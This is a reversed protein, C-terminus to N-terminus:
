PGNGDAIEVAHMAAVRRQQGLKPSASLRDAAGGHNEGELRMRKLDESRFLEHRHQGRQSVPRVVQVRGPRILDDDQLDVAIQQLEVGFFEEVLDYSSIQVSARDHFSEVKAETSVPLAGDLSESREAPLIANLKCDHRRQKDLANRDGAASHPITEGTTRNAFGRVQQIARITQAAYNSGTLPAPSGDAEGRCIQFLELGHDRSITNVRHACGHCRFGVSPRRVDSRIWRKSLVGSFDFYM